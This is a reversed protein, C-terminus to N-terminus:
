KKEKFGVPIAVDAATASAEVSLTEMTSTFLLSRAEPKKNGMMRRALAGSIGGGSAPASQAQAMAAASKVTETKMVVMLATGEIKRTEEGLRKMSEQLGPFMAAMGAFQQGMAAMSEGYVATYFKTNFETVENLAAIRPGVWLENTLVLGGSEELTKGKEFATVTIVVQRTNQGALTKTEGTTKVEAKIEINKAAESLQGREDAPMDKANKEMDAQAKKWQERLQAFTFVRYEKKKLDIDYVKEEGLDVIRGNQDNLTSMRQGKVAVSNTIGDKVAGGGVMGAFRGLLGEIKVQSKERVKADAHVVPAFLAAAALAGAVLGCPVFAAKMVKGSM